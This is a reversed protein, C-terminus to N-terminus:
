KIVMDNFKSRYIERISDSTSIISLDPYFINENRDSNRGFFVEFQSELNDYASYPISNKFFNEEFKNDSNNDPFDSKNESGITIINNMLSFFIFVSIFSKVKVQNTLKKFLKM